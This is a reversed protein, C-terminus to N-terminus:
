RQRCGPEHDVLNAVGRVTGPPLEDEDRPAPVIARLNSWVPQGSRGYELAEDLGDVIGAARHGFAVGIHVLLIRPM